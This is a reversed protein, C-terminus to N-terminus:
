LRYGFLKQLCGSLLSSMSGFSQKKGFHSLQCMHLHVSSGVVITRNSATEEEPYGVVAATHYLGM